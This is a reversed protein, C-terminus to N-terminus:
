CDALEEKVRRIESSESSSESSLEQKQIRIRFSASRTQSNEFGLKKNLNLDEKNAKPKYAPKQDFKIM